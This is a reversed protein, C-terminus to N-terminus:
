ASEGYGARVVVRTFLEIQGRTTADWGYGEGHLRTAARAPPAALLARVGAAVGDATADVLRGAVDASVVEPVGGVRTAVVPTGCALAELVVNPMGERRSTLVLADAANYYEVLAGQAVGGIFRVRSAVCARVARQELEARLPGDGAILLTAEPLKALAAIALAHDKEPVLNGVALLVAGSVGLRSRIADRDAAPAFRALDVGNRLVHVEGREVGLEVLRDRLAESVTVLGAAARAADRIQRRPLAQEAIANLDTGRATVVVPKRLRRGLAVAAVGDPYFYHADILDVRERLAEVSARAGAAMLAPAASMGIKPIALWRPHHVSMGEQEECAPVRAYGAYRGFRPSRSPFWPVPAVVTAQVRGSARLHRLREAVFLGHRPQEANPYLSTFTLVRLPEQSTM